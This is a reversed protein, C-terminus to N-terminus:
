PQSRVRRSPLFPAAIQHRCRTNAWLRTLILARALRVGARVRWRPAHQRVLM